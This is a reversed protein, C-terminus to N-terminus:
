DLLISTNLLFFNTTNRGRKERKTLLPLLQIRPLLQIERCTIFLDHGPTSAIFKEKARVIAMLAVEEKLGEVRATAFDWQPQVRSDLVKRLRWGTWM